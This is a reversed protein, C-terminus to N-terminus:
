FITCKKTNKKGKPAARRKEKKINELKSRVENLQERLNKLVIKKDLLRSESDFKTLYNCTKIYREVTNLDTSFNKKISVISDHKLLGIGYKMSSDIQTYIIDMVPIKKEFLNEYRPILSRAGLDHFRRNLSSIILLDQDQLFKFINKIVDDDLRSFTKMDTINLLDDVENIICKERKSESEYSDNQIRNFNSIM